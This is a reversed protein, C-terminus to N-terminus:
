QMAYRIHVNYEKEGKSGTKPDELSQGLLVIQLPKTIPDTLHVHGVTVMRQPGSVGNSGTTGRSVMAYMNNVNIDVDFADTTEKILKVETLSDLNDNVGGILLQPTNRWLRHIHEAHKKLEADNAGVGAPLEPHTAHSSAVVIFLRTNAPVGILPRTTRGVQGWSGPIFWPNKGQNTTRLVAGTNDSAADNGGQTLLWKTWEMLLTKEAQGM